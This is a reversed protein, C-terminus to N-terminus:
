LSINNTQYGYYIERYKARYRDVYNTMIRKVYATFDKDYQYTTLCLLQNDFEEIFMACLNEYNQLQEYDQSTKLMQKLRLNERYTLFIAGLIDHMILDMNLHVIYKAKYYAYFGKLIDDAISKKYFNESHSVSKPNNKWIYIPFDIILTKPFYVNLTLNFYVDDHTELLESFRINNTRLFATRYVKGHVLVLNKGSFNVFDAGSNNPEIKESYGFLDIDSNKEIDSYIRQITNPSYLCDDDDCIILYEGLSNDIAYQRSLGSWNKRASKIYKINNSINKFIGQQIFKPKVPNDCNNCLIIEITEFDIGQQQDISNFIPYITQEPENHYPIIISLKIQKM